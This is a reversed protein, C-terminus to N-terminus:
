CWWSLVMLRVEEFAAGGLLSCHVLATRARDFIQTKVRFFTRVKLVIGVVLGDGSV